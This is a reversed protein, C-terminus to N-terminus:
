IDRLSEAPDIKIFQKAGLMAVGLSLLCTILFAISLQYLSLQTSFSAIQANKGLFYNFVSSGIFYFIVAIAYASSSILFVQIAIYCVINKQNFGLLRLTAILPRKRDINALFSGILSVTGGILATVAIVIFILNLVSNITLTSHIASQQSFTPIHQQELWQSLTLVESMSNAYIRVNAFQHSNPIPSIPQFEDQLGDIFYEIGLLSELPMFAAARAFEHPLLIHVVQASFIRQIKQGNSIRSLKFFIADKTQLQLQQALKHSIAIHQQDLQLTNNKFLPDGAATPIIESYFGDKITHLAAKETKFVQAETNLSRTLGIAFSVDPRAQVSQIWDLSLRHSNGQTRIELLDPKQALDHRLQTIVGHKLGFLLLLPAIVAVLAAIVCLSVKKDHWLDKLALSYTLKFLNVPERHYM